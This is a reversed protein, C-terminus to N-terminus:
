ARKALTGPLAEELCYEPRKFFAPLEGL